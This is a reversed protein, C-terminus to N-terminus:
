RKFLHLLHSMASSAAARGGAPRRGAIFRAVDSWLAEFQVRDFGSGTSLWDIHPPDASADGFHGLV